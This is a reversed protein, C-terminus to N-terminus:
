SYDRVDKLLLIGPAPVSNGILKLIEDDTNRELLLLAKKEIEALDLEKEGAGILEALICEEEVREIFRKQFQHRTRDSSINNINGIVERILSKSEGIKKQRLLAVVLLGNAELAVRTTPGALKSIGILGAEAYALRNADICAEYAWLKDKLLRHHTRNTGFLAQIRKAVEIAAEPEANAVAKRLEEELPRLSNLLTEPLKTSAM